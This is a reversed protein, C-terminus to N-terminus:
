GSVASKAKTLEAKFEDRWPERKALVEAMEAAARDRWKQMEARSPTEM